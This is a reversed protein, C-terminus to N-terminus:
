LSCCVRSSLFEISSSSLLCSFVVAALGVPLLSRTLTLCLFRGSGFGMARSNVAEVVVVVVVVAEVGVVDVTFVVVGDVKVEKAEALALDLNRITAALLSFINDLILLPELSLSSPSSWSSSSSSNSSSSSGSSTLAPEFGSCVWTRVWVELDTTTRLPWVVMFSASGGALPSSPFFKVRLIPFGDVEDERGDGGFGEGDVIALSDACLLFM